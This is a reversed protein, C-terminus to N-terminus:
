LTTIPRAQLLYLTNKDFAWEIDVEYWLFDRVQKALTIVKHLEKSNLLPTEGSLYRQGEETYTDPTLQGSVLNEGLGKVAEVVVTASGTVPHKTFAVGSIRAPIMRQVIVTISGTDISHAAAYTTARESTGSARCLAIKELLEDRTVGLFTDLQGAWAADKDDERLGSSRVAVEDTRLRDFAALVASALPEDPLVVFGEPVPFTAALRALNAAKGGISATDASEADHLSRM